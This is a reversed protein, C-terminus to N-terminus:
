YCNTIKPVSVASKKKWDKEAKKYEAANNIRKGEYQWPFTNNVVGFPGPALGISGSKDNVVHFMLKADTITANPSKLEVVTVENGWWPGMTYKTDAYYKHSQHYDPPKIFTKSDHEEYWMSKLEPVSNTYKSFTRHDSIPRKKVLRILLNDGKATDLGKPKSVILRIIGPKSSADPTNATYIKCAKVKFQTQALSRSKITTWGAAKAELDAGRQTQYVNWGIAVSAIVILLIVLIMMPKSLPKKNISTVVKSKTKPM